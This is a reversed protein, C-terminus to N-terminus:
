RNDRIYLTLAVVTLATLPLIGLRALWAVFHSLIFLSFLGVPLIVVWLFGWTGDTMERAPM